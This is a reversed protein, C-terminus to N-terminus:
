GALTKGTREQWAKDEARKVVCRACVNSHADLKTAFFKREEESLKIGPFEQKFVRDSLLLTEMVFLFDCDNIWRGLVPSTCRVNTIRQKQTLADQSPGAFIIKLPVARRLKKLEVAKEINLLPNTTWALHDSEEGSM